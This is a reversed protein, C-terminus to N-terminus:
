DEPKEEREDEVESWSASVADRPDLGRTPRKRPRVRSPGGFLGRVVRHILYVFALIVLLRLLM